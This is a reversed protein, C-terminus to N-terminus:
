PRNPSEFQPQDPNADQPANTPYPQTPPATTLHQWIGFASSCKCQAVIISPVYMCLNWVRAKPSVCYDHMLEEFARAWHIIRSYFINTWTVRSADREM